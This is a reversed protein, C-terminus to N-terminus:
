NKNKEVKIDDAGNKTFLASLKEERGYDCTAVVGFYEGSCREDYPKGALRAPMRSMVLFGLINGLVGFLITFEFGVIFFPVFGVVPKGSVILSWRTATFIALLFGTIFGIIGGCLTFYGVKSKSKKLEANIKEAPVPSHVEFLDFPSGKLSKIAAVANDEEKYLGIVYQKDPM